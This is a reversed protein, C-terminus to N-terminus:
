RQRGFLALFGVPALWLLVWFGITIALPFIAGSGDSGPGVAEFLFVGAGSLCIVSWVIILQIRNKVSM